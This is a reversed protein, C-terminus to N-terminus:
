SAQKFRRMAGLGLLGAVWLTSSAPEPVVSGYTLTDFFARRSVAGTGTLSGTLRIAKIDNAASSFELTDYASYCFNGTLCSDGPLSWSDLGIRNASAIAASNYAAMFPLGGIGLYFDTGVLFGAQISVHSVPTDFVIDIAGNSQNFAYFYPSGSLGLVNGATDANSWEYTRVPGTGSLPANFTVGAYANTIDTNVTGDFNLTTLAANVPSSGILCLAAVTYSFRKINM